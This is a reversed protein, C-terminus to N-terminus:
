MRPPINTSSLVARVHLVFPTFTHGSDTQCDDQEHHEQRYDLRITLCSSNWLNPYVEIKFGFLINAFPTKDLHYFLNSQSPLHSVAPFLADLSTGV